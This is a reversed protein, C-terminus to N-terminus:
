FPLKPMDTFAWTAFYQSQSSFNLQLLVEGQGALNIPIAYKCNYNSFPSNGIETWRSASFDYYFLGGSAAFGWFIGDNSAFWWINGPAVNASIDYWDNTFASWSAGGDTSYEKAYTASNYRILYRGNASMCYPVYGSITTDSGTLTTRYAYNPSSTSFYYGSYASRNNGPFSPIGNFAPSVTSFSTGDTTSYTNSLNTVAFTTGDFWGGCLQNSQQSFEYYGVSNGSFVTSWTAGKDLSQQINATANTPDRRLIGGNIPNIVVSRASGTTTKNPAQVIVSKKDSFTFYNFYHSPNSSSSSDTDIVFRSPTDSVELGMVSNLPGGVHSLFGVSRIVTQPFKGVYGLGDFQSLLSM